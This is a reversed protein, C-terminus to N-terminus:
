AYRRSGFDLGHQWVVEVSHIVQRCRQRVTSDDPGIALARENAVGWGPAVRNRRPYLSAPHMGLAMAEYIRHFVVYSRVRLESESSLLYRRGGRRRRRPTSPHWLLLSTTAPPESPCRRSGDSSAAAPKRRAKVATAFKWTRSRMYIGAVAYKRVRTRSGGGGNRSVERRAQPSGGPESLALWRCPCDGSRAFRTSPSEVIREVDARRAVEVRAHSRGVIAQCTREGGMTPGYRPTSSSM